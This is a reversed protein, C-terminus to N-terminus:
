SKSVGARSAADARARLFRQSPELSGRDVHRRVVGQSTVELRELPGEDLDADRTLHRFLAGAYAACLGNPYAAAAATSGAGFGLSTHFERGCSATASCTLALATLDLDGFVLFVTPKRFPRGFRCQHLLVQGHDLLLGEKDLYPIMYSSSPQELTGTAGLQKVLFRVSLATNRAIANALQTNADEPYLGEPSLTSRLKTRWSRDRARSFTSCPPAFHFLLNLGFNALTRWHEWLAIVQRDDAFDVGGTNIDQPTDVPVGIRHVAKSLEGKGAFCEIFISGKIDAAGRRSDEKTTHDEGFTM